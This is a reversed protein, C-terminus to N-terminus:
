NTNDIQEIKCLDHPIGLSDIVKIYSNKTIKAELKKMRKLISNNLQAYQEKQLFCKLSIIISYVNQRPSTRESEKHLFKNFKSNTPAKFDLIKNNHAVANRLNYINRLYSSLEEQRLMTKMSTNESLFYNMDKAITNKLSKNLYSYFINTQGLTMFNIMVWIPVNNYTDHYHKIANEQNPRIKEEIIKSISAIFRAINPEDNENIDYNSLHLYAYKQNKFEESYRYALVSKFHHEAEIINKFITSKIEKDFHHIDMINEFYSNDEYVDQSVMLFKSYVNILTYYNNILLYKRSKEEDLFKLNRSKLIGIQEDLSKFDKRM